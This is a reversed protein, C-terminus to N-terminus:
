SEPENVTIAREMALLSETIQGELATVLDIIRQGAKESKRAEQKVIGLNKLTQRTARIEQAITDVDVGEGDAESRLRLRIFKLTLGPVRRQDPLIHHHQLDTESDGAQEAGAARPHGEVLAGYPHASVGPGDGILRHDM